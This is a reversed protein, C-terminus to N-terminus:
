VIAAVSTMVRAAARMLLRGPLPMEPGGHLKAASAHAIEDARMRELMARSRQDDRPLRRLHRGLHDGVQNETERLFALVARDGALSVVLAIGAAGAFWFPDLLSRRDGLEALRTKMWALHEVEEEASRLFYDRLEADRASLAHALYLSQACVEGAHNVRMMAGVRKRTADDSISSATSTPFEVNSRPVGVLARLGRDFLAIVRDVPLSQQSHM